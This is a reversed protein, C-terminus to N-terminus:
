YAWRYSWVRNNLTTNMAGATNAYMTAAWNLCGGSTYIYWNKSTRNTIWSTKGSNLDHCEGRSTDAGDRSAFPYSTSTDHFCIWGSPCGPAAQAPSATVALVLALLAFLSMIKKTM